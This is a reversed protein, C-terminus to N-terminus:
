RAAEKVLREGAAIEDPTMSEAMVNRSAIGDVFGNQAALTFWKYAQAQDRTTGVGNRYMRGLNLQAVGSGREAARKLWTLAETPNAVMGNGDRLMRGLEAQAERQGAEAARRMWVGAAAVDASTGWGYRLMQAVRFQADAEGAAAIPELRKLAEAYDEREFAVLGQELDTTAASALGTALVLFAFACGRILLHM